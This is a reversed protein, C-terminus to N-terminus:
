DNTSRNRSTLEVALELREGGRVVTVAVRQGPQTTELAGFYTALSTVEFGDVAVIVDGDVPISYGGRQLVRGDEGGQLGAEAANGSERVRTVLLGRSVGIGAAQALSRDLPVGQLEIWGREVRGEAIIQRAVRLVTDAPLAFGIGINAGTPSVISVNMGVVTGESDLLPGGSNGPNIATDTQVLNNVLFGSDTEMPRRLGSVLGSTLTGELGFPNGLAFVSQGIQLRESSGWRVPALTRGKPDIRIVAIDLEEDVGVVEAKYNSGDYLTVVISQADEIVHNNTIVHGDTDHFFGSGGGTSPITTGIRNRYAALTTINVVSRLNERYVRIAIREFEARGELRLPPLPEEGPVGTTFEPEFRRVAEPAPIIPLLTGCGTLSSMVAASVAVVVPLRSRRSVSGISQMGSSYM